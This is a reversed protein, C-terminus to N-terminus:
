VYLQFTSISACAHPAFFSKCEARFPRYLESSVGYTNGFLFDSRWESRFGAVDMLTLRTGLTFEIDGAESGDLEFAPQLTPPAFSKEKVIVFWGQKGDGEMM